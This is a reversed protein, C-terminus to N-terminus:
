SHHLIDVARELSRLIIGEAVGLALGICVGALAGFFADVRYLEAMDRSVTVRDLMPVVIPEVLIWGAFGGLGGAVAGRIRVDNLVIAM